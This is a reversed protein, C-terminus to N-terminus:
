QLTCDDFVITMILATTKMIIAFSLEDHNTSPLEYFAITKMIITFSTTVVPTKEDTNSTCVTMSDINIIEYMPNYTVLFTNAYTVNYSEVMVAPAAMADTNLEANSISLVDHIASVVAAKNPVSVTTNNIMDYLAEDAITTFSIGDTFASLIQDHIAFAFSLGYLAITKMIIPSSEAVIFHAEVNLKYSTTVAPAVTTMKTIADADTAASIVADHIASPLEHFATMIMIIASSETVVSYAAIYLEYSTIKMTVVSTVTISSM